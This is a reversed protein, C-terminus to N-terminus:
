PLPQHAHVQPLVGGSLLTNDILRVQGIRVALSVLTQDDVTRVSEWSLYDRIEVYEVRVLREMAVLDLIAERLATAERLGSDYLQKALRLSKSLCVAQRREEGASLYVNRSSMALGDEERATPGIVIRVPFNLDAAMQQIVRCQQADKQGFVALAPQVINFLKAVVTAVGRFHGTRSAGCQTRAIRDEEVYVSRDPRYMGAESPCFLIGVGERACLGADQDRNRPYRSFDESPGFQIPNVFVSVVVVDAERKGIRVLSLHGDHLAGMTPIFAIKRGSRCLGLSIAQMEAASEVVKM